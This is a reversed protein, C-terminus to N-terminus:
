DILENYSYDSATVSILESFLQLQATINKQFPLHWKFAFEDRRAVHTPFFSGEECGKKVKPDELFTTASVNSPLEVVKARTLSGTNACTAKSLSVRTTMRSVM